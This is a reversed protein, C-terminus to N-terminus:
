EDLGFTDVAKGDASITMMGGNAYLFFYQKPKALMTGESKVQVPRGFRARLRIEEVVPGPLDQLNVVCTVEFVEGQAYKLTVERDQSDKGSLVAVKQLQDKGDVKITRSTTVAEYWKVAPAAADFVRRFSDPMEALNLKGQKEQANASLTFAACLVFLLTSRLIM